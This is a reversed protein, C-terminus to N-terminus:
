RQQGPLWTLASNARLRGWIILFTGVMGGIANIAQTGADGLNVLDAPNIDWGIVKGVAPLVASLFTIIGGWIAVSTLIWKSEM